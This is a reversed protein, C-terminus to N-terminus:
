GFWCLLDSTSTSQQFTTVPLLQVVSGVKVLSQVPLEVPFQSSSCSAGDGDDDSDDDDDDNIIIIEM